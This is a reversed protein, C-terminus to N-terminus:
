LILPTTDPGVNLSYLTIQPSLTFGMFQDFASSPNSKLIFLCHFHIILLLDLIKYFTVCILPIKIEQM